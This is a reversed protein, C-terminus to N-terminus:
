GHKTPYKAYSLVNHSEEGLRFDETVIFGIVISLMIIIVFITKEFNLYRGNNSMIAPVGM